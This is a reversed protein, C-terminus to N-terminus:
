KKEPPLLRSEDQMLCPKIEKTKNKKAFLYWRPSTLMKKLVREHKFICFLNLVFISYIYRFLTLLLCDKETLVWRPLLRIDPGPWRHCYPDLKSMRHTRALQQCPLFYFRVLETNVSSLDLKTKFLSLPVHRTQKHIQKCYDSRSWSRFIVNEGDCLM